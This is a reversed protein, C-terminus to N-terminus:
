GPNANVTEAKLTEIVPASWPGHLLLSNRRPVPVSSAPPDGLLLRVDVQNALLNVTGWATITSTGSIAEVSESAIVGNQVNLKLDLRDLPTHGRTALGWGAVGSAQAATVLGKLDIGLRGGDQLSIALKGSATRMLDLTTGGHAKLDAVVTSQGELATQGLVVNSARAADLDELRGVLAFRPQPGTFDATLQGNTRGGAVTLEAVDALLRGEKLTLSAAFRGADMGGVLLHGASLRVDADFFKSLPMSLPSSATWSLPTGAQAASSGTVYPTIDFSKFALTGTVAPRPESFSLALAGTAENGDMHFVTKDFALGAQQWDLEGKIKVDRLAPGSPWPAGLWRAMQRLSPISIEAQGQLQTGESTDLRGDFSAEALPAKLRLKLPIAAGPKREAAGYTNLEFSVPQGRLRGSGRAAVNFKKKFSLESTVDTLSEVTGDPLEVRVTCRRLVLGELAPSTLAEAVPALLGEQEITPPRVYAGSIALTGGEIVLRTAAPRADVNAEQRDAVLGITGHELVLGPVSRVYLPQSAEYVDRPAAFVTVGSLKFENSGFDLVFPAALGLTGCFAVALAAIYHRRKPRITQM